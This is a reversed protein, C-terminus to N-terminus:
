STERLERAMAALGRAATSKVTGPSIGLTTAIETESLELYFRLVLVERRRPPLSALAAVVRRRDESLMAAEEATLPPCPSAQEQQEAHRRILRWRRLTTRCGNIVAARLYYQPDGHMPDGRRHVRMFVDQVVDEAAGRDSLIFAALRVLEAWHLRFVEDLGGDRYTSPKMYVVRVARATPQGDASAAKQVGNVIGGRVGWRYPGARRPLCRDGDRDRCGRCLGARHAGARLRLGQWPLGTRALQHAFRAVDEASPDFSTSPLLDYSVRRALHRRVVIQRLYRGALLVAAYAATRDSM